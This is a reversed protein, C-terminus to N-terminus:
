HQNGEWPDIADPFAQIGVGFYVAEYGFEDILLALDYLAGKFLRAQRAESTENLTSASEPYTIAQRQPYSALWHRVQEEPTQKETM